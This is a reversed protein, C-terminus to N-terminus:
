EDSNSRMEKLMSAAPQDFMDKLRPLMELMWARTKELKEPPDDISGDRRLSISSFTFQNKRRWDWEQDPIRAEITRKNKMLEDFVRKTLEKDEAQIHLTVWADNNGELSARYGIGADLRSAFQRDNSGFKKIARDTFGDRLLRDVLPQFFVNFQQKRPDVTGRPQTIDKNWGDPTVVPDLRPELANGTNLVMVKVGYFKREDRTWKNLRHLAEAHEYQFDPAVWVAIRADLGAAYTLLQGLHTHDSWELQNEIAVKVNSGVEKAVIDCSFPGVPAETQVRKLKVGGLADSLMDLNEALWPTFDRDEYRWKKHVDVYEIGEDPTTM